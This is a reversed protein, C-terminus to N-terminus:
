VWWVSVPLNSELTRGCHPWQCVARKPLFPSPHSYVGRSRKQSSCKHGLHPWLSIYSITHDTGGARSSSCWCCPTLRLPSQSRNKRGRGRARCSQQTTTSPQPKTKYRWPSQSGCGAGSGEHRGSGQKTV